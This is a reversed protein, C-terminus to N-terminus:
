IHELPNFMWVVLLAHMQLVCLTISLLRYYVYTAAQIQWIMTFPCTDHLERVETVDCVIIIIVVWYYYRRRSQSKAV